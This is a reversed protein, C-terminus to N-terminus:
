FKLGYQSPKKYSQVGYFLSIEGVYDEIAVHLCFKTSQTMNGLSFFINLVTKGLIQPNIKFFIYKEYYRCKFFIICLKIKKIFCDYRFCYELIIKLFPYYM